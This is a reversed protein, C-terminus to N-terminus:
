ELSSIALETVLKPTRDHGQAVAPDPRHQYRHLLWGFACIGRNRIAEVKDVTSRPLDRGCPNASEENIIGPFLHDSIVAVPGIHKADPLAQGRSM